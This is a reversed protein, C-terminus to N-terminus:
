SYLEIKKKVEFVSCYYHIRNIIKITNFLIKLLNPSKIM